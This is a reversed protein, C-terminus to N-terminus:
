RRRWTDATCNGRRWKESDVRNTKARAFYMEKSVKPTFAFFRVYEPISEPDVFQTFDAALRAEEKGFGEPRIQALARLVLKRKPLTMSEDRLLFLYLATRLPIM